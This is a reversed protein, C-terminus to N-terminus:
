LAADDKNIHFIVGATKIEKRDIFMGLFKGLDMLAGKKDLLKFKTRRTIDGTRPNTIEDTVIEGIAAAKARDLETFDLVPQGDGDIRIYDLMNAFGIKELEAVVRNISLTTEAIVLEQLERVRNQIEPKAALAAASKSNPKFGAEKYSSYQAKGRALLNAFLEWRENQLIPM